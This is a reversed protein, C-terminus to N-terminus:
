GHGGEGHRDDAWSGSSSVRVNPLRRLAEIADDTHEARILADHEALAGHPDNLATRIAGPLGCPIQSPCEDCTRLVSEIAAEIAQRASQEGDTFAELAALLREAGGGIQAQGNALHEIQENM